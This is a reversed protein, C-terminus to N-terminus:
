GMNNLRSVLGFGPPPPPNRVGGGGGGQSKDSIPDQTSTKHTPSPDSPQKVRIIKMKVSMSPEGTKCM